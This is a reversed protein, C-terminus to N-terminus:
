RPGCVCRVALCIKVSFLYALTPGLAHLIGGGGPVFWARQVCGHLGPLASRRSPLPRSVCQVLWHLLGSCVGPGSCVLVTPGGLEWGRGVACELDSVAGAHLTKETLPPALFSLSFTRVVFAPSPFVDGWGPWVCVVCRM